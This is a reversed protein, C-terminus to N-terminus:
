EGLWFSNAKRFEDRAQEALDRAHEMDNAIGHFGADSLWKMDGPKDEVRSGISIMADSLLGFLEPLADLFSDLRRGSEPDFPNLHQQIAESVPDVAESM